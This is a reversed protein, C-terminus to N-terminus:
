GLVRKPINNEPDSLINLNDKQIGEKQSKDKDLCSINAIYWVIAGNKLTIIGWIPKARWINLSM